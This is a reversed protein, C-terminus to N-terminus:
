CRVTAVYAVPADVIKVKTGGAWSGPRGAITLTCGPYASIWDADRMTSATTQGAKLKGRQIWGSSTIDGFGMLGTSARSNIAQGCLTVGGITTCSGASAPGALAVSATLTLALAALTATIRHRM